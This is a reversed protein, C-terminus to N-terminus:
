VELHSTTTSKELKKSYKAGLAKLKEAQDILNGRGSKLRNEAQDFSKNLATLKQAINDMETVFLTFKDFLLGAREAIKLANKNQTDFRWLNYITRLSAALAIPTVIIINKELAQTFLNQNSAMALNLAGELPIFLMVFDLQQGIDLQQYAKQTLRNVQAEVSLLHQKAYQDKEAETQAAIYREYATLSVKADIVLARENPLHVIVDPRLRAGEQNTTSTQTTFERGEQLGSQSLLRNLVMEGWIGQVHSKGKLAQALNQADHQMQQNLTKLHKIEHFLSVRDKSEKDYTDRVQTEFQKIQTKLPNIIQNIQENNVKNLEDNKEKLLKEALLTFENKVNQQLNAQLQENLKINEKLHKNESKLAIIKNKALLWVITGTLIFTFLYGLLSLSWYNFM